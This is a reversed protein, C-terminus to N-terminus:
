IPEINKIFYNSKKDVKLFGCKEYFLNLSKQAIILDNNLNDLGFVNFKLTENLSIDHQKPFSQLAIYGCKGDFFTEIGSLIEKGYGKNRHDPYLMMEHIVLISSNFSEGVLKEIKSKLQKTKPDIIANGLNITNGSRDFADFLNFGYNIFAYNYLHLEIEGIKISEDTNYDNFFIEGFYEDVNPADSNEIDLVHTFKYNIHFYYEM